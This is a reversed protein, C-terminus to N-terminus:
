WSMLNSAGGPLCILVALGLSEICDTSVFGLVSQMSSALFKITKEGSKSLRTETLGISQVTRYTQLPLKVKEHRIRNIDGAKEYFTIRSIM